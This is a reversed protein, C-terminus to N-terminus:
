SFLSNYDNELCVNRVHLVVDAADAEGIHDRYWNAVFFIQFFAYGQVAAKILRQEEELSFESPGYAARYAALGADIKEKVYRGSDKGGYVYCSQGISGALDSIRCDMRAWDFDFLGVVRSGEYHVNGPHLDFHVLQKPLTDYSLVDFERQTAEAFNLLDKKRGFMITKGESEPIDSMAGELLEEANKTYYALSFNPYSKSPKFAVAAKTFAASARFFNDLMEGEFHAVDNWSARIEGPIFDQLMWFNGNSSTLYEGRKNPLLHPSLAYGVSELYRLVEVEFELHEPLTVSSSQRLVFKQGGIEVIFTKNVFGVTNRLICRESPPLTYHNLVDEVLKAEDQTLEVLKSTTM